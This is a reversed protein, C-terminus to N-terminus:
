PVISKTICDVFGYEVSQKATVWLDKEILEEIEKVTLNSRAALLKVFHNQLMQIHKMEHVMERVNGYTGTSIQHMMMYANPLICRKGKTGYLAILHSASAAWGAVVTRVDPKIATMVDIIGLANYVLGGPSCIVMTIDDDSESALKLLQAIVEGASTQTVDKHLTIVRPITLDQTNTATEAM